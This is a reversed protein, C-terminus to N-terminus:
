AREQLEGYEFDDRWAIGRASVELHGLRRLETWPTTSDDFELIFYKRDCTKWGTCPCVNPPESWPLVSRRKLEKFAEEVSRYRGEQWEAHSEDEIVVLKSM